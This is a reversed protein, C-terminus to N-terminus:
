DEQALLKGNAAFFGAGDVQYIGDAFAAFFQCVKEEIPMDESRSVERERQITYLQQTQILHEMLEMQREVNDRAELWAAWNNLEARVGPESTLFCEIWLLTTEVCTWGQDDGAVKIPDTEGLKTLLEELAALEPQAEGRCFV